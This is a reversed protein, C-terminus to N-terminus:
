SLNLHLVDAVDQLKYLNRDQNGFAIFAYEQGGINLIAERKPLMSGTSDIETNQVFDVNQALYFQGTQELLSKIGDLTCYANGEIYQLEMNLFKGNWHVTTKEPELSAGAMLIGHWPNAEDPDTPDWGRKQTDDVDIKMPPVPPIPEEQESRFINVRTGSPCYDYIWKADEVTLRICGMSAVSGLKNYENYKLTGKNTTRYPVSHFLINGTIRTAYQGYVGGFLARWEYRNSTYFTGNPTGSGVSCFFSKVPITHNGGSDKEYVVVTNRTCNVDISYAGEDNGAQASFPVWSIVFFALLVFLVRRKTM